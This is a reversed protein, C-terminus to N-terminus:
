LAMNTPAYQLVDRCTIHFFDIKYRKFLGRGQNMSFAGAGTLWRLLTYPPTAEILRSFYVPMDFTLIWLEFDSFSTPHNPNPAKRTEKDFINFFRHQFLLKVPTIRYGVPSCNKNKL